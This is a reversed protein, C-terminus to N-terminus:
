YFATGTFPLPTIYNTCNDNPCSPFTSSIVGVFPIFGCAASWNPDTTNQCNARLTLSSTNANYHTGRKLAFHASMVAPVIGTYFGAVLQGIYEDSLTLIMPFLSSPQNKQCPAPVPCPKPCPPCPNMWQLYGSFTIHIERATFVSSTFGLSADFVALECSLTSCTPTTPPLRQLWSPALDGSIPAAWTFPASATIPQNSTSNNSDTHSSATAVFCLALLAVLMEARPTPDSRDTLGAPAPLLPLFFMLSGRGRFFGRLAGCM